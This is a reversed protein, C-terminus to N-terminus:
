ALLLLKAVAEMAVTANPQQIASAGRLDRQHQRAVPARSPPEIPWTETARQARGDTAPLACSHLPKRDAELALHMSEASHTQITWMALAARELSRAYFASDFISRHAGCPSSLATCRRLKERLLQARLPLNREGGYPRTAVWVAVAEYEKISFVVLEPLGASEVLSASVRSAFARGRLTLVPLGAFLADTCTTHANYVVTDLFLDCQDHRAFHAAKPLRPVWEIRGAQVGRAALEVHISRNLHQSAGNSPSSAQGEEVALRTSPRLLQLVSGPVRALVRAWVAFTTPELKDMKNFNCFRFPREKQGAGRASASHPSASALAGPVPGSHKALLVSPPFYNAQYVVPMYVVKETFSRSAAEAPLVAPDAIIFDLWEAGSTGPYVLFNVQVTCPRSALLHPRSGLTHVQADFCVDQRVRSVKDSASRHDDGAIDLFGGEPAFRGHPTTGLAVIAQRLRSSDDKGYSVISVAVNDRDHHAFLGEMLQATPHDNFDHSFYSIRFPHTERQRDAKTPPQMSSRTRNRRSFPRAFASAVHRQFAEDFDALLTDFPLLSPALSNDLEVARVLLQLRLRREDYREWDCITNRARWLDAALSTRALLEPTANAKSRIEAPVPADPHPVSPTGRMYADIAAPVRGLQLLVTGVNKYLDRRLDGSVAAGLPVGRSLARNYWALAEELQLAHHVVPAVAM